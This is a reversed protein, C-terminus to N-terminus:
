IHSEVVKAVKTWSVRTIRDEKLPFENVGKLPLKTLKLNRQIVKRSDQSLILQYAKSSELLERRLFRLTTIEGIRELGKINDSSCGMIAKVLSWKRPHIGYKHTFNKKSFSERKTPNWITVRKSLLQYLDADSSVIIGRDWRELGGVVAAIIDDAEYGTQYFINKYGIEHLINTKLADILQKIRGKNEHEPDNPDPKRSKKYDKYILHRRKAIHDFCFVIRKTCHFRQLDMLDSLFSHVIDQEVSGMSQFNSHKRGHYIRWIMNDCDVILWHRISKM